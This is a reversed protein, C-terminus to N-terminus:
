LMAPVVRDGMSGLTLVLEQLDHADLAACVSSTWKPSLILRAPMKNEVALIWLHLLDVTM